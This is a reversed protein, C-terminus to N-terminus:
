LAKVYIEDLFWRTTTAAAPSTFEIQTDATAGSISYTLTDWKDTSVSVTKTATGDEFTGGGLINVVISNADDTGDANNDGSVAKLYAMAKFSLSLSGVTELAPTTVKGTSCIIPATSYTWNAAPHGLQIYGPRAVANEAVLGNLSTVADGHANALTALKERGSPKGGLLYDVGGNCGDFAEFYVADSPVDTDHNEVPQIAIGGWLWVGHGSNWIDTQGGLIYNNAARPILRLYLMDGESVSFDSAFDIRLSVIPYQNNSAVINFDKANFWTEDDKSYQLQWKQYANKAYAGFSVIISSPMEFAVPVALKYFSEQDTVFYKARIQGGTKANTRIAITSALAGSKGAEKCHLYVGNNEKDTLYINYESATDGSQEVNVWKGVNDSGAGYLSLCYPLSELGTVPSQYNDASVEGMNYIYGSLLDYGETSSSTRSIVSGDSLTVNVALNSVKGPLVALYYNGAAMGSDSKLRMEKYVSMSEASSVVPADASYDIFYNGGLVEENVGTVAIQKVQGAFEDTITFKLLAMVNKFKVPESLTTAKAVAVASSPLFSNLTATQDDDLWCRIKIGENFLFQYDGQPYILGYLDESSSFQDNTTSFVAKAGDTEATFLISKKWKGEDTPQTDASYYGAYSLGVKDGATWEVKNGTTLVTKTAAGAVSPTNQGAVKMQDREASFSAVASTEGSNNDELDKVCSVAVIVAMAAIFFKITKM